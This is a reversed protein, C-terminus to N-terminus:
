RAREKKAEIWKEIEAADFRVVGGLVIAPPLYQEDRWRRATRIHVGLRVAVQRLSLLPAQQAELTM